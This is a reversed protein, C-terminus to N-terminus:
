MNGEDTTYRIIITLQNIHVINPTSDNSISFYKAKKVESVIKLCLSTALINIFDNRIISLLYSVKGKFYNGKSLYNDNKSCGFVKSEGRFALIKFSQLEIFM